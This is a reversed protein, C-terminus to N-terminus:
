IKVPMAFRTGRTSTYRPFDQKRVRNHHISIVASSASARFLGACWLGIEAPAAFVLVRGAAMGAEQAAAAIEEAQGGSVALWDLHLAAALEGIIDM